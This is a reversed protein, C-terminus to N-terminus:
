STHDNGVRLPTTTKKRDIDDTVAPGPDRAKPSVAVDAGAAHEREGPTEAMKDAVARNLQYALNVIVVDGGGSSPLM